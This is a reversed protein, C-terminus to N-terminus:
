APPQRDDPCELGRALASLTRELADRWDPLGGLTAQFDHSPALVAHSPRRAPTPYETTNIAQVQPAQTLLGLAKARAFIEQAFAHWTTAPGAGLHYCGPSHPLTGAAAAEVLRLALAALDGAYSPRGHQDAVVNLTSREAGLRLMTKVFNSGHESFVWSTRLIWGSRCLTAVALEGGLKTAGYVGLPAVPDTPTYPETSQGDFVYDTSFHVLPVALREAARAVAAVATVNVAWAAARETEAKDVATYAAANIIASPRAELIRQEVTAADAALDLADRGWCEAAPALAQLHTALQGHRGLILLKM